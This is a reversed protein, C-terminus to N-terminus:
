KFCEFTADVKIRFSKCILIHTLDQLDYVVTVGLILKKTQYYVIKKIIILM